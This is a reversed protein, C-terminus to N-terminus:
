ERSGSIAKSQQNEYIKTFGMKGQWVSVQGEIRRDKGTAMPRFLSPLTLCIIVPLAKPMQGHVFRSRNMRM